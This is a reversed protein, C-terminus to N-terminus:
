QVGGKSAEVKAAVQRQLYGENILAIIQGRVGESLDSAMRRLRIM